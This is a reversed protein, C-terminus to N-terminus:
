AIGRVLSPAGAESAAGHYAGVTEVVMNFNAGSAQIVDAQEGLGAHVTPSPKDINEGDLDSKGKSTGDESLTCLGSTGAGTSPRQKM